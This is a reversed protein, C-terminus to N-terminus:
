RRPLAKQIRDLHEVAAVMQARITKAVDANPTSAAVEAIDLSTIQYLSRVLSSRATVKSRTQGAGTQIRTRHEELESGILQLAATDSSTGDIAKTLRQTETVSMNADLVLRTAETFVPDSRIAGLAYRTSKPLTHFRRDVGLHDARRAAKRTSREISIRPESVGVCAAAAKATWGNDILHVAQAIREAESPPLGHRRNDEYTLRLVMEGEADILYAPLTDLGAEKAAHWRHNGGVIVHGKRPRRLVVIPPFTDGRRMDAAYRDVVEPDLPELRAQNALSAVQDVDGLPMAPQHEFTVHRDTLWKEIDPHRTDTTTATTV